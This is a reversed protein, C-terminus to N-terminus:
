LLPKYLSQEKNTCVKKCYRENTAIMQGDSNIFFKLKETKSLFNVLSNYTFVEDTNEPCFKECYEEISPLIDADCKSETKQVFNSNDQCSTLLEEQKDDEISDYYSRQYPGYFCHHQQGGCRKGSAVLIGDQYLSCDHKKNAFIHRENAPNRTFITNEDWFTHNNCLESNDASFTSDGVTCVTDIDERCWNFKELCQNGCWLGDNDMSYKRGNETTCPTISGYNVTDSSGSDVSETAPDRRSLCDFEYESSDLPYCQGHQNNGEIADVPCQTFGEQCVINNINCHRLDSRDACFLLGECVDDRKFTQDGTECYMIDNDYSVPVLCYGQKGIKVTAKDCKILAFDKRCTDHDGISPCCWTDSDFYDFATITENGCNCVTDFPKLTKEGCLWDSWDKYLGKSYVSGSDCRELKGTKVSGAECHVSGDSLQKCTNPASPCCWSESKVYDSYTLSDQCCKCVSALSLDTDGCPWSRDIIGNYHVVAAECTEQIGTYISANHCHVDGNDLYQCQGPSSPCCWKGDYWDYMTLKVDGCVCDRSESLRTDGCPYTDYSSSRSCVIGEPCVVNGDLTRTCTDFGCCDKKDRKSHLTLTINGCLCVADNDETSAGGCYWYSHVHCLNSILFLLTLVLYRTM